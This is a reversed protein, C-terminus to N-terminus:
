KVTGELTVTKQADFMAGSHHAFAPTALAAIAAAIVVTKM